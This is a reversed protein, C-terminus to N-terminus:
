ARSHCHGHLAISGGEDVKGGRITIAKEVAQISAVIKQGDRADIAFYDTSTRASIITSTTRRQRRSRLRRM